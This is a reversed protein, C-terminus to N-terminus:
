YQVEFKYFELRHLPPAAGPGLLPLPVGPVGIVAPDIWIIFLGPPAAGAWTVRLTEFLRATATVASWHSDFSIDNAPAAPLNVTLPDWLPRYVFTDAGAFAYPPPNIAGAFMMTVAFYPSTDDRGVHLFAFADGPGPAFGLMMAFAAPAPRVVPLATQPAFNYLPTAHAVGAAFGGSVAVAAALLAKRLRM